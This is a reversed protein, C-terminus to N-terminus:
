QGPPVDGVEATALFEQWELGNAWILYETLHQRLTISEDLVFKDRNEVLFNFVSADGSEDIEESRIVAAILENM